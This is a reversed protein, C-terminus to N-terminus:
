KELNRLNEPERESSWEKARVEDSFIKGDKIAIMKTPLYCM